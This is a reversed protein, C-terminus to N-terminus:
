INELTEVRTKLSRFANYLATNIQQQTANTPLSLESYVGSDIVCASKTTKGECLDTTLPPITIGQNCVESM